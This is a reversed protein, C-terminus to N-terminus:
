GDEGVRVNAVLQGGLKRPGINVKAKSAANIIQPDSPGTQASVSAYITLFGISAFGISVVARATASMYSRAGNRSDAPRACRESRMWSDLDQTSTSDVRM